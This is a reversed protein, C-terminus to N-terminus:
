MSLIYLFDGIHIESFRESNFKVSFIKFNEFLHNARFTYSPDDTDNKANSSLRLWDIYFAAQRVFIKVGSKEINLTAFVLTWKMNQPGGYLLM